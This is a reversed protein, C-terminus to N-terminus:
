LRYRARRARSRFEGATSFVSDRIAEAELRRSNMRWLFHNDRDAAVDKDTAGKSSSSLRYASSTVILRHIHKMQWGNEMLEVALWDLLSQNRPKPSRLGFDFTNDVLPAGFHRLWIHNIAVRATLPNNRDVLWKAFALRRGTSQHPIETGLPTYTSNTDAMAAHAKALVAASDAVKKEDDAILKASAADNPKAAAEAAVLAHEASDHQEQAQCLAFRREAKAAAAALIIVDEGPALGYKAKDAAIRALLAERGARVTAAHKSASEANSVLAALDIPADSNSQADGTQSGKKSGSAAIAPAPTTVQGNTGNAQAVIPAATAKAVLRKQADAVAAEAKALLKEAAAVQDSAHTLDENLAFEQLAPYYELVPMEIPEVKLASGFVEPTGATIAVDKKPRREDGRELLYTPTEPTLDCARSLGNKTLEAEGPMRETRLNYPEFIARFRYYEVQSIPDFKHDHCRCCNMTVGLFAKGTHEVTAQLWVDRNFKYWDRVLFGTARLVDPDTPAIEDGALMEMAMRDYGKDANLSEVIWDRWRWLHRASDRVEEKYGSWDSYRWVDMWHRAWREGYQPSALLRDVVDEYATPSTSNLFASQEEPTPPLGILDLYVRRLLTSKDAEAVPTLGEADYGAAVFADVPNRVWAVNNVQPVGPRVPAHYAWHERPDPQPVEAPAHAGENIWRKFLEVQEASLASGESEPPMRTGSDGTLMEILYSAGANGPEVAPGADGGKILAAATDLRLGSKKRLASHCAYCRAVLLPKIQAVYDVEDGASFQPALAGWAILVILRRM